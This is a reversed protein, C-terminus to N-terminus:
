LNKRYKTASAKEDRQEARSVAQIQARLKELPPKLFPAPDFGRYEGTEPGKHGTSFKISERVFPSDIQSIVAM